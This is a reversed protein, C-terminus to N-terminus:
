AGARRTEIRKQLAELEAKQLLRYRAERQAFVVLREADLRERERRELEEVVAKIRTAESYKQHKVLNAEKARWELVERGFRVPKHVLEAHLEEQHTRLKKLHKAQLQKIYLTAMADYESLYRDWSGNFERFQGVQADSVGRREAVHRAKLAQIRRTEEQQRLKKLQDTCRAAEEYNGGMECQGQYEALTAIFEVVRQDASEDLPAGGGGGGGGGHQQQTAFLQPGAAELFADVGQGTDGAGNLLGVLQELSIEGGGAEIGGVLEESLVHLLGSAELVRRLVGTPIIGRGSPDQQSFARLLAEM